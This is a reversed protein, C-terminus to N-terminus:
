VLEYCTKGVLGPATHKTNDCEPQAAILREVERGYAEVREHGFQRRVADMHAATIDAARMYVDIDDKLRATLTAVVRPSLDEVRPRDVMRKLPRQAVADPTENFLLGMAVLFDNTRETLGVLSFDRELAASATSVQGRGLIATYENRPIRSAWEDISLARATPNGTARAFYYRSIEREVPHRLLTMAYRGRTGGRHAYEDLSAHTYCCLCGPRVCCTTQEDREALHGLVEAVTTGGVKFFKLFFVGEAPLTAHVAVVLLIVVFLVRHM